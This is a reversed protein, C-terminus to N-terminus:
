LNHFILAIAHKIKSTEVNLNLMVRLIPKEVTPQRIAGILYGQSLLGKQLYTAQENNKVEIPLILSNTKLDFEKLLEQKEKIKERFEQSKKQILEINLLGLATDFVSPATTYIIAKARNELYSIIEKSSLIYAGYSGYAKGLTGMKIHYKTPKINYYEFIGLLNEGLVGGSHAEDVVLIAKHSETVEFIEKKCIEGSMSYIGEVVVIQRNAQNKALKEELDQPDNHNFFIVRNELLKSTLIGSAHFEEDLFLLDNKRVLSEILSINALFGSGVTLGEEFGQMQSVTKEFIKHIPHYGNILMSAKSTLTEYELVMKYAKKFQKQNTSLGLYDNSALDELTDDYLVRERFRGAKKLLNIEEQYM